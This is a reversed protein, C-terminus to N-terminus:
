WTRSWKPGVLTVMAKAAITTPAATVNGVSPCRDSRIPRRLTTTGASNSPMTAATTMDSHGLRAPSM